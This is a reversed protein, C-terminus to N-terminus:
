AGVFGIIEAVYCCWYIALEFRDEIENKKNLNQRLKCKLGIKRTYLSSVSNLNQKKTV